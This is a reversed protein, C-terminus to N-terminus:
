PDGKAHCTGSVGDLVDLSDGRGSSYPAVRAYNFKILSLGKKELTETEWATGNAMRYVILYTSIQRAAILLPWSIEALPFDILDVAALLSVALPIYLAASEIVITMLSTYVRATDATDLSCNLGTFRRRYFLLRGVILCSTIVNLVMSLSLLSLGGLLDPFGAGPIPNLWSNLVETIGIIYSVLLLLCPVYIAIIAARWSSTAWIVWCRWIVLCDALFTLLNFSGLKTLYFSSIRHEFYYGFLGGPYNWHNDVYRAEIATTISFVLLVISLTSIYIMTPIWYRTRRRSWLLYMCAPYVCSMLGLTGGATFDSALFARQYFAAVNEPPM